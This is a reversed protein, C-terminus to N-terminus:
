GRHGKCKAKTGKVGQWQVREVWGKHGKYGKHGSKAGKTCLRQARQVWGKQEEHCAKTGSTDLKNMGAKAGKRNLWQVRQLRQAWGNQGECRQTRWVRQLPQACSTSTFTPCLPLACLSPSLTYLPHLTSIDGGSRVHLACPPHSSSNLHGRWRQCSSCVTQLPTVHNLHGWWRKVHFAHFPACFVCLCEFSSIQTRVM